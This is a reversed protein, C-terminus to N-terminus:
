TYEMKFISIIMKQPLNWSYIIRKSPDAKYNTRIYGNKDSTFKENKAYSYKGKQYDYKREWIQLEVNGLPRGEERSLIFYDNGNNIYALNSMYFHEISLPQDAEDSFKENSSSLLAYEGVPLADIKIEVRHTQHDNTEPISNSFTKIVPISLVRKWFEPRWSNELSDRFSKDIRILRFFVVSTNKYTVLMRFPKGPLDVKEAVLSIKKQLIQELLGQCNVKGESSDKNTIVKECIKRATV